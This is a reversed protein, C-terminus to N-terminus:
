GEAEEMQFIGAINNILKKRSLYETRDTLKLSNAANSSEIRRLSQAKVWVIEFKTVDTRKVERGKRLVLLLALMLIRNKM